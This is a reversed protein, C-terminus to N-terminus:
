SVGDVDLANWDDDPVEGYVLELEKRTMKATGVCCM